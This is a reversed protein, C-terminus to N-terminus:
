DGQLPEEVEPLPVYEEIVMPNLVGGRFQSLYRKMRLYVPLCFTNSMKSLQSPLTYNKASSSSSAGTKVDMIGAVNVETVSSTQLSIPLIVSSAKDQQSLLNPLVVLSALIAQAEKVEDPIVTVDKQSSRPFDLAQNLYVRHGRLPLFGILQASLQLLYEKQATINSTYVGTTIGLVGYASNDVANIYLVDTPSTTSITLYGLSNLSFTLGNTLSNLTVALNSVSVSEGTLKVEQIPADEFPVEDSCVSFSITDSIDEIFTFPGLELSTVRLCAEQTLMNWENSSLGTVTLIAEAEEVSIYSDSNPGGVLLNLM